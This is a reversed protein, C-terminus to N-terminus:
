FVIEQDAEILFRAIFNGSKGILQILLGEFIITTMGDLM